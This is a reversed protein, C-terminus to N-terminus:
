RVLLYIVALTVGLAMMSSAALAAAFAWSSWAARRAQPADQAQAVPEEQPGAPSRPRALYLSALVVLATLMAPGFVLVLKVFAMVGLKGVLREGWEPQAYFLVLGGLTLALLPLAALMILRVSWRTVDPARLSGRRAGRALVLVAGISIVLFVFPLYPLASKLLDTGPLPETLLVFRGPAVFSLVWGGASLLLLPLSVALTVSALLRPLPMGARKLRVQEVPRAAAPELAYLAALLVVGFLTAPAFILAVRLFETGPLRELLATFRDPKLYFAALALVSLLMLPVAPVLVFLAM